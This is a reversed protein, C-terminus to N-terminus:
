ALSTAALPVRTLEDRLLKQYDQLFVNICVVMVCPLIFDTGGSQSESSSSPRKTQPIRLILPDEMSPTANSSLGSGDVLSLTPPPVRTPPPSHTPLTHFCFLPSTDLSCHPVRIPPLVPCLDPVPPFLALLAWPPLDQIGLKLIQTFDRPLQHFPCLPAGLARERSLSPPLM